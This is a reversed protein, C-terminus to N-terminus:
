STGKMLCIEDNDDLGLALIFIGNAVSVDRCFGSLCRGFCGRRVVRLWM